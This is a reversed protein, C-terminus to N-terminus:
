AVEIKLDCRIAHPDRACVVTLIGNEFIAKASDARVFPPLPIAREMRCPVVEAIVAREQNDQPAHPDAPGLTRVASLLLTGQEIRLSVDAPRVGPLEFLLRYAQESELVTVRAPTITTRNPFNSVASAANRLGHLTRELRRLNGEVWQEPDVDPPIPAVPRETRAPTSGTLQVYLQELRRTQEEINM